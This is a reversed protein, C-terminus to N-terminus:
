VSGVGGPENTSDGRKIKGKRNVSVTERKRIVGFRGTVVGRVYISRLGPPALLFVGGGRQM